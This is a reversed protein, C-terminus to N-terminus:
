LAACVTLLRYYIGIDQMFIDEIHYAYAVSTCPGSLEIYPCMCIWKCTCYMM